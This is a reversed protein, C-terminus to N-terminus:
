SEYPHRPVGFLSSKIARIEHQAQDRQVVAEELQGVLQDREQIMNDLRSYGREVADTILNETSSIEYSDMALRVRLGEIEDAFRLEANVIWGVYSNQQTKALEYNKLIERIKKEVVVEFNAKDDSLKFNKGLPVDDENAASGRLNTIVVCGLLAAERPIRDTGPHEGLDLYLKSSTLAKIVNDRTLNELWVINLDGCRALLQKTRDFGKVPNIAIDFPKEDDLVGDRHKKIFDHNIYDTLLVIDKVKHLKLFAKAYSSQAAHIVKPFLQLLIDLPLKNAIFFNDVSLWWFVCQCTGYFRPILEGMVEPIILTDGKTPPAETWQVEYQAFYLDKDVAVEQGHPDWLYSEVGIDGLADALQHLAEPGGSKSGKPCAIIM